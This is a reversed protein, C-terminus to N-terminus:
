IIKVSQKDNENVILNKIWFIKLLILAFVIFSFIISSFEVAIVAFLFCFLLLIFEKQQIKLYNFINGFAITWNYIFSFLISVIVLLLYDLDVEAYFGYIFFLLTAIFLFIAFKEIIRYLVFIKGVSSLSFLQLVRLLVNSQIFRFIANIYRWALIFAANNHELFRESILLPLSSFYNNFFTSPSVFLIYDFNGKIIELCRVVDKKKFSFFFKRISSFFYGFSVFHSILLSTLIMEISHNFFFSFIFFSVVQILRSLQVRLINETKIIYASLLSTHGSIVMCCATLVFVGFDFKCYISLLVSSLLSVLPSLFVLSSLLDGPSLNVGKRSFIGEFQLNAVSSFTGFYIMWLSYESFLDDGYCRRQSYVSLLNILNALFSVSVSAELNFKKFIM